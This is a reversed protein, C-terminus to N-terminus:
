RKSFTTKGVLGKINRHAQEFLARALAGDHPVEIIDVADRVFTKRAAHTMSAGTRLAEERTAARGTRYSMVEGWVHVRSERPDQAFTIQQVVYRDGTAKVVAIRANPISRTVVLHLAVSSGIDQRSCGGSDM